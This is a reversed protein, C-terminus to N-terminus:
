PRPVRRAGRACAATGLARARRSALAGGAAPEVGEVRAGAWGLRAALQHPTLHDHEGRDHGCQDGLQRPERSLLRARARPRRRACLLDRTRPLDGVGLVAGEDAAALRLLAAGDEGLRPSVGVFGLRREDDRRGVGAPSPAAAVLLRRGAAALVLLVAHALKLQAECAVARHAAGAGVVDARVRNIPPMATPADGEGLPVAPARAVGGAIVVRLVEAVADLVSSRGRPEVRLTAWEEAAAEPPVPPELVPKAVVFPLPVEPRDHAVPLLPFGRGLGRGAPGAPAGGRSSRGVLLNALAAHAVIRRDVGTKLRAAM